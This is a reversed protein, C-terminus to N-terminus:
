TNKVAYDLCARPDYTGIGRMTGGANMMLHIHWAVALGALGIVEGPQVIQGVTVRAFEAHGYGIHHGKKFPGVDELVELQIIGDGKSVDGSPSKGWWGGARVDIVKAKCMAYLLSSPPCIVDIGDHVPPHYGWSDAIITSVPTHVQRPKWRARLEKRLAVIRASRFRKVEAATLSRSRVKARLAATVGNEMAKDALIGRCRLLAHTYSRTHVGYIGDIQIPCFIRLHKFEAKVTEQWARVDPGKMRPQMVKLVLETTM